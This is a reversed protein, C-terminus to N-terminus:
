TREPGEGLNSGVELLAYHRRQYVAGIEPSGEGPKGRFQVCGGEFQAEWGM